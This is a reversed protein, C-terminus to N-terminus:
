VGACLCPHRWPDNRRRLFGTPSLYPIGLEWGEFFFENSVGPLDNVDISLSYRINRRGVKRSM